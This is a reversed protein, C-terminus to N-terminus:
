KLLEPHKGTFFEEAEGISMTEYFHKELAQIFNELTEPMLQQYRRLFLMLSRLEKESFDYNFGASEDLYMM